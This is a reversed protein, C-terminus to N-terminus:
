AAYAWSPAVRFTFESHCPCSYHARHPTFSGRPPPYERPAHPQFSCADLVAPPCHAGAPDPRGLYLRFSPFVMDLTRIPAAAATSAVPISTAATGCDDAAAWSSSSTAYM